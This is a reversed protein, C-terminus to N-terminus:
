ALARKLEEIAGKLVEVANALGKIEEYVFGGMDGLHDQTLNMVKSFHRRDSMYWGLAPMQNDAIDACILPLFVTGSVDGVPPNVWWHPFYGPMRANAPDIWEWWSPDPCLANLRKAASHDGVLAKSM